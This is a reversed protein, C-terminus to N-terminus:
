RETLTRVKKFRGAKAQTPKWVFGRQFEPVSLQHGVARDVLEWAKLNPEVAM